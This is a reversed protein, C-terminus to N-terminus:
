VGLFEPARRANFVVFVSNRMYRGMRPVLGAAYTGLKCTLAHVFMGLVEVEIVDRSLHTRELVGDIMDKSAGLIVLRDLLSQQWSLLKELQEPAFEAAVGESGSSTETLKVQVPVGEALAFMEAIQKLNIDKTLGFQNKLTALPIVAQTVKPEFVGVDVRLEGKTLDVKSIFGKLTSLEKAAELTLPCLGFEKNIFNKAIVEDEGEVSVQVWKNLHNGLVKVEVDLEEFQNQLTEDVQKLQGQNSAKVFLVLNTM